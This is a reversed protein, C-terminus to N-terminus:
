VGSKIHLEFAEWIENITQEKNTAMKLEQIMAIELLYEIALVARTNGGLAAIRRAENLQRHLDQRDEGPYLLLYKLNIIKGLRWQEATESM